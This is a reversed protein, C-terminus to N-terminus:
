FHVKSSRCDPADIEGVVLTSNGWSGGKGKGDGKGGGGLGHRGGNGEQRSAAGKSGALLDPPASYAGERPDRTFRWGVDNKTYESLSFSM